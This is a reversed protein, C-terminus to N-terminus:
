TSYQLRCSPRVFEQLKIVFSRHALDVAETTDVSNLAKLFVGRGAGVLGSDRELIDCGM